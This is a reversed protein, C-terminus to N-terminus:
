KSTRRRRRCPEENFVGSSDNNVQGSLALTRVMTITVPGLRNAALQFVGIMCKDLPHAIGLRASAGPGHRPSTVRLEALKREEM